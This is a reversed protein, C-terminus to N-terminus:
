LKHLRARQMLDPYFQSFLIELQSYHHIFDVYTDQLPALKQRHKAMGCLVRQIFDAHAYSRMGNNRRLYNIFHQFEIPFLAYDQEIVALIHQDFDLLSQQPFYNHWNKALFHDWIIDLAIPAFRQLHPQFLTKAQKIEALGDVCKDVRRHLMIGDAIILPYQKYPNGKVYDAAANGIISSKALTALHLHALINM